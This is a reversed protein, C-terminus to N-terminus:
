LSITKTISDIFNEGPYGIPNVHFKGLEIPTHTHGAFWAIIHSDNAIELDTAYASNIGNFKFPDLLSTSPLHHTLVIFKRNSNEKLYKELCDVAKNHLFRCKEPNFDLIKFYDNMLSVIDKEESSKINSWLTSGFVTYETDHIHFISNQLYVISSNYKQKLNAVVDHIKADIQETSYSMNYYEHNGSTIIILRDSFKQCLISLFFSYIKSFPDGIDGAILLVDGKVQLKKDILKKLKNVNASYFETHIDSFYQFIM